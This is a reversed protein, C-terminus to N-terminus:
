EPQSFGVSPGRIKFGCFKAGLSAVARDFDALDIIAGAYNINIGAYSRNMPRVTKGFDIRVQWPSQDPKAVPQTSTAAAGVLPIFCATLIAALVLLNSNVKPDRMPDKGNGNMISRLMLIIGIGTDGGGDPIKM